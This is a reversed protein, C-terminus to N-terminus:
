SRFSHKIELAARAEEVEDKTAETNTNFNTNVVESVERQKLRVKGLHILMKVDGSLAVQIQKQKLSVDIKDAFVSKLTEYDHGYEKTIFRHLTARSVDFYHCLYEVKAEYGAFVELKDKSIREQAYDRQRKKPATKKKPTTV